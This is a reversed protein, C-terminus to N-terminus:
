LNRDIYKDFVEKAKNLNFFALFGIVAEFATAYAKKNSLDNNKAFLYGELLKKGIINLNKNQLKGKKQTMEEMSLNKKFKEMMLLSTCISDGVTALCRYDHIKKTNVDNYEKAFVPMTLSTIALEILESDKNDIKVDLIEYFKKTKDVLKEYEM